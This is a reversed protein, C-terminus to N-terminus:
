SPTNTAEVAVRELRGRYAGWWAQDGPAMNSNDSRLGAAGDIMERVIDAHGAHRNTEAIMHVVIQLLTVSRREDPWWSVDGPADLELADITADSHTRARQYLAIIQERSEDSTAWMDANPEADAEFWPLPEGSPRGFCDGFYGFETSAVHKILGLLNTGTPTIPRRIDYESLGDLKWVLSDRATDLYRYLHDKSSSRSM